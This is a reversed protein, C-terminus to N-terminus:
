SFFAETASFTARRQQRQKPLKWGGELMMVCSPREFHATSNGTTFVTTNLPPEFQVVATGGAGSTVSQKVYHLSRALSTKRFEILSAANIVFGNPLGAITAQRSNTITQITADGNFAAGGVAKVLGYTSIPNQGYARPRQRYRDYAIFTQGGASALNLFLDLADAYTSHLLDTGVSLRWFPSGFDATETRRGEFQSADRTRVLEMDWDIYRIGTEPISIPAAVM